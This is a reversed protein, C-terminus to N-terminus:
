RLKVERWGSADTPLRSVDDLSLKRVIRNERLLQIVKRRDPAGESMKIGLFYRSCARPLVPIDVLVRGTAPVQIVSSGEVDVRVSYRQPSPAVVVIRQQSPSNYPLLALACAGLCSLGVLLSFLRFPKTV